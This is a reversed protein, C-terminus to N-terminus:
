PTPRSAVLGLEHAIMLGNTAERQARMDAYATLILPAVFVAVAGSIVAGILTSAVAGAIVGADGTASSRAVADVAAGLLGGVVSTGITIGLITACRAVSTGLNAHFLSFCRGIAFNREVAVVVPLVLFVALIYFIPIICLCIAALYIPIALLQWGILPLVRRAGLRLADGISPEAGIAVSAGIHVTALTM